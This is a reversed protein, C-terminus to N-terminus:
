IYCLVTFTYYNHLLELIATMIFSYTIFTRTLVCINNQTDCKVLFPKFPYIINEVRYERNIIYKYFFIINQSYGCTTNRTIYKYFSNGIIIKYRATLIYTFISDNRAILM